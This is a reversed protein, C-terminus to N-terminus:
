AWVPKVLLQSLVLSVLLLKLLTFYSNRKKSEEHM